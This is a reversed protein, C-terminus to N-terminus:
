QSKARKEIVYRLEPNNVRFWHGIYVWGFWIYDRSLKKFDIKIMKSDRVLM